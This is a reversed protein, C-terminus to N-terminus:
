NSTIYLPNFLLGLALLAFCLLVSLVVAREAQIPTAMVSFPARRKVLATCKM